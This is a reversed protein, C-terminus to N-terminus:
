TDGVFVINVQADLRIAGIDVEHLGEGLAEEALYLSMGITGYPEITRQIGDVEGTLKHEITKSMDFGSTAGVM